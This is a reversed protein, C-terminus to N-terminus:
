VMMPSASTLELVDAIYSTALFFEKGCENITSENVGQFTAGSYPRFSFLNLTSSEVRRGMPPDVPHM